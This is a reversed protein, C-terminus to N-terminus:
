PYRGGMNSNTFTDKYPNVIQNKSNENISFSEGFGFTYWEGWYGIIGIEFAYVCPDDDYHSALVEIVEIAQKSFKPDNFNIAYKVDMKEVREVGFNSYLSKPGTNSDKSEGFWDYYLRLIFYKGKTGPRGLVAEVADFDFVGNLPEFENWSFYQFSVPAYDFDNWWGSNFGKLLNKCSEETKDYTFETTQYVELSKNNFMKLNENGCFMNLVPLIFHLIVVKFIIM